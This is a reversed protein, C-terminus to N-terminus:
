KITFESPVAAIIFQGIKAISLLTHDPVLGKVNVAPYKPALCSTQESSTTLWTLLNAITQLAGVDGPGPGDTTGYYMKGMSPTCTNKDGSGTYESSIKVKSLNTLESKIGIDGSLYVNKNSKSLEKAKDYM